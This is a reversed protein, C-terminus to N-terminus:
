IHILSLGFFAELAKTAAPDHEADLLVQKLRERVAPKMKASVLELARPFEASVHLIRLEARYNPPMRAPDNWDLDSMVGADVLGKVM